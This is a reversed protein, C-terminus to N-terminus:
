IEEPTMGLFHAHVSASCTSVTACCALKPGDLQVTGGMLFVLSDGTLWHKNQIQFNFFRSFCSSQIPDHLMKMQYWKLLDKKQRHSSSHWFELWKEGSFHESRIFLRLFHCCMVRQSATQQLYVFIICLFSKKTNNTITSYNTFLATASFFTLKKTGERSSAAADIKALLLKKERTFLYALYILLCVCM